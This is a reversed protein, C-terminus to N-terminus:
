SELQCEHPVGGRHRDAQTACKIASLGEARMGSWSGLRNRLTAFSPAERSSRLSRLWQEIGKATPSVGTVGGRTMSLYEVVFERLEAENWNRTYDNHLKKGSRIGAAACAASWSGFVKNFIAPTPGEVLGVNRLDTYRQVTLQEQHTAALRLVALLEDPEWPRSRSRGRLRGGGVLDAKLNAYDKSTIAGRELLDALKSLEDAVSM